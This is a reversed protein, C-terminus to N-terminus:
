LVFLFIRLFDVKARVRLLVWPQKLTKQTPCLFNRTLPVNEFGFKWLPLPCQTPWFVRSHYASKFLALFPPSVQFLAGGLIFGPVWPPWKSKRKGGVQHPLVLIKEIPSFQSFIEVRPNEFGPFRDLCNKPDLPDM